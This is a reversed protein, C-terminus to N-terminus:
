SSSRRAARRRTAPWSALGGLRPMRVDCLVLDPADALALRLGAEGDEATIVDYGEDRLILTLTHRLGAEDDVVLVRRNSV